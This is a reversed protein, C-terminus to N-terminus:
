LLLQPAGASRSHYWRTSRTSGFRFRGSVSPLFAALITHTDGSKVLPPHVSLRSSGPHGPPPGEVWRGGWVSAGALILGQAVGARHPPLRSHAVSLPHAYLHPRRSSPPALRTWRGQVGGRMMACGAVGGRWICWRPAEQLRSCIGVRGGHPGAMPPAVVAGPAGEGM